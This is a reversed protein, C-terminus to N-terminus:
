IKSTQFKDMFGMITPPAADDKILGYSSPRFLTELIINKNLSNPDQTDRLLALFTNIMTVREEADEKLHLNSLFIRVFIRIIWVYAGISVGLVTLHIFEPDTISMIFDQIYYILGAALTVATFFTAWGWEM